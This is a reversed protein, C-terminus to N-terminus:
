VTGTTSSWPTEWTQFFKRVVRRVELTADRPSILLPAACCITVGSAVYSNVAQSSRLFFNPFWRVWRRIYSACSSLFPLNWGPGLAFHSELVQRSLLRTVM